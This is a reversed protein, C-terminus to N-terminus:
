GAATPPGARRRTRREQLVIAYDSLHGKTIRIPNAVLYPALIRARKEAAWAHPQPVVIRMALATGGSSRGLLQSEAFRVTWRWFRALGLASATEEVPVESVSALLLADFLDRMRTFGGIWGHLALLLAHLDDRPRQIGSIGTRSPEATALLRDADLAAWGPVNPRTHLDLGILGRPHDLAPLHHFRLGLPQDTPLYGQAVLSAWIPPADTLLLDLDRFPRQAPSPYLQAVELGKMLVLPGSSRAGLSSLVSEGALVKRAQVMRAPHTDSSEGFALGFGHQELRERPWTAAHARVLGFLESPSAFVTM